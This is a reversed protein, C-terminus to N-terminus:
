PSAPEPVLVEVVELEGLMEIGGAEEVDGLVDVGDPLADVAVAELVLVLM